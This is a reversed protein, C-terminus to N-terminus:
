RGLSWGVGSGRQGTECQEVWCWLASAPDAPEPRVDSAANLPPRASDRNQAQDSPCREPNRQGPEANAAASRPHAVLAAAPYDDPLPGAAAASRLLHTADFGTRALYSLREALEPLFPDANVSPV